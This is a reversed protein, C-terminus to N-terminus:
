RVKCHPASARGSRSHYPPRSGRALLLAKLAKEAAQQANSCLDELCVTEELRRAQTLNSNARRLWERPDDAPFREPPM